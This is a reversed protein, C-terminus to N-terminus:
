VYLILFLLGIFSIVLGAISLGRPTKFVSGFSFASGLLWLIRVLNPIWGLFLTIITLVFVATGIGNSEKKNM